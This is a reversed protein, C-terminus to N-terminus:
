NGKVCDIDRHHNCEKSYFDNKEILDRLLEHTFAPSNPDSTPSADAPSDLTPTQKFCCFNNGLKRVTSPSPNSSGKKKKRFRFRPVRKEKGLKSGFGNRTEEKIRDDDRRDSGDGGGVVIGDSRDNESM